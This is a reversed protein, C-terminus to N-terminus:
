TRICGTRRIRGSTDPKRYLPEIGMRKMLTSLHKRGIRHGERRLIDRLLRAGMFPHELDLEDLRRMLALDSPSVPQPLYYM